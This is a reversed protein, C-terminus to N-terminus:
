WGFLNLFFGALWWLFWGILGFTVAAGVLIGLVPTEQWWEPDRKDPEPMDEM